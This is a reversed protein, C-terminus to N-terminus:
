KALSGPLFGVYPMGPQHARAFFQRRTLHACLLNPRPLTLEAACTGVRFLPLFLTRARDRPRIGPATDWFALQTAFDERYLSGRGAPAFIAAGLGSPSIQSLLPSSVLFSVTRM